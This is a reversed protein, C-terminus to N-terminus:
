HTNDWFCANGLIKNISQCEALTREGSRNTGRASFTAAPWINGILNYVFLCFYLLHYIFAKFWCVPTCLCPSGWQGQCLLLETPSATAGMLVCAFDLFPILCQPCKNWHDTHLTQQIVTKGLEEELSNQKEISQMGVTSTFNDISVSFNCFTPKDSNQMLQTCEASCWFFLLYFISIAPLHTQEMQPFSVFPWTVKGPQNCLELLLIHLNSSFYFFLGVGSLTFSECSCM